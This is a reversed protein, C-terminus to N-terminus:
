KPLALGEKFLNRPFLQNSRSPGPFNTVNLNTRSESEDVLPEPETVPTAGTTPPMLFGRKEQLLLVLQLSCPRVTHHM